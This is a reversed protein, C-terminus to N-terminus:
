AVGGEAAPLDEDSTPMEVQVDCGDVDDDESDPSSPIAGGSAAEIELWGRTEVVPPSATVDANANLGILNSVGM